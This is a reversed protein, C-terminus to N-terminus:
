TFGRSGMETEGRGWAPWSISGRRRRREIISKIHHSTTHIKFCCPSLALLGALIDIEEKEEELDVAAAAQQAALQRFM